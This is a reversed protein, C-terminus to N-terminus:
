EYRLAEAIPVRSAARAPLWAMILSAVLAFGTVAGVEAWPVSFTVDSAASGLAGSTFLSWALTLGLVLGLGIGTLAIFGSEFLFSLEVMHRQYGIARLMGIQQRREVVSRSATVGLAAIGVILGLALFGEFVSLFTRMRATTGSLVQDMSDASLSVMSSEIAESYAKADVGAALRVFFSQGDAQPYLTALTADSMVIGPWFPLSSDKMQGIVTLEVTKGGSDRVLLQFPQFGDKTYSSPLKLPDDITGPGGGLASNSPIVALDHGSDLAQWVAQDSDYGAARHQLSLHNGSFFSADGGILTYHKWAPNPNRPDRISVESSDATRNEAASEIKSTDAAPQAANLNSVLGGAMTNNANVEVRVDYGGKSANNNFEKTMNSSFAALMSAIFMILAIMAVTVGTKFRSTLPYAIATKVAPLIRGFRNGFRAVLPLVLGANYVILFTGAIVMTIGSFFLM